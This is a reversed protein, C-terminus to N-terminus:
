ENNSCKRPTPYKEIAAVGHLTTDMRKSTWERCIKTFGFIIFKVM